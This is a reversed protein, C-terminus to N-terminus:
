HNLFYSNSIFAEKLYVSGDFLVWVLFAWFKILAEANLSAEYPKQSGLIQICVVLLCVHHKFFTDFYLKELPSYPKVAVIGM